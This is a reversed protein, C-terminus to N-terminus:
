QSRIEHGFCVSNLKKIMISLGNDHVM